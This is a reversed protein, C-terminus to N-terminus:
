ERDQPQQQMNEDSWRRGLQVLIGDLGITTNPVPDTDSAHYVDALIYRLDAWRGSQQTQLITNNVGIRVDAENLPIVRYIDNGFVEDQTDDGDALLDIFPRYYERLFDDETLAIDVADDDYGDPDEWQIAFRNGDDGQFHAAVAIRWIPQQGNPSQNDIIKGIRRTQRKAKDFVKRQEAGTLTDSRGKAEAVIWNGQTDRGVLDPKEGKTLQPDLRLVGRTMYVDLHMLWPVSLHREVLLKTATLGLFYSTVTKESPDSYRYVNSRHICNGALGTTQKLNANIISLRTVIEWRSYGRYQLLDFHSQKGVTIAARALDSWSCTCVNDGHFQPGLPFPFNNSSYPIGISGTTTPLSLRVTKRRGTTRSM